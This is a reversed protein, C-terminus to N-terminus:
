YGLWNLADRLNRIPESILTVAYAVRRTPEQHTGPAAVIVFDDGLRIVKNGAHSEIFRSIEVLSANPKIHNM